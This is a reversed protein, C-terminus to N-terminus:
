FGPIATKLFKLVENGRPDTYLWILLAGMSILYAPFTVRAWIMLRRARRGDNPDDNHWALISMLLELILLLYTAFFVYDLAVNYGVNLRSSLNVHFFVISLVAGTMIGTVTDFKYGPLFLSLYALLVLCFLPLMNKLVFRESKRQISIDMNFRSNEVNQTGVWIPNGLSATNSHTDIYVRATTPTWDSVTAFVHDTDFRAILAEGSTIKDMGLSDEVYILRERTLNKHRFKIALEQHDFPYNQLDVDARFQSRVRFLKYNANGVLYSSVPEDLKIPAVSNIFEIDEVDLDGQYRFWLYFDATFTHNKDIDVDSIDNLKIGAYVVNTKYFNEAGHTIVTGSTRARNMDSILRTDPIPRLQIPAAIFSGQQFVGFLTPQKFNHEQDFYISGTLGDVAKTPNDISELFDRIGKREAELTDPSGTANIKRMAEVAIRLADYTTAGIWSPAEKYENSYNNHFIQAQEGAVDYSLITMATLGDIDSPNDFMPAFHVDGMGYSAILPFDQKNALMAVVLAKAENKTLALFVIGPQPGDPSTFAQVIERATQLGREDVTTLRTMKQEYVITGGQTEFTAKFSADLSQGFNDDTYIISATDHGMVDKTYLAAYRGLDNTNSILRFAWPHDKTVEPASATTNLSPIRASEYISAVAASAPSKRHGIVVLARRDSVVQNAKSTAEEISDNGDYYFDIKLPYGNVGGSANIESEFLKAAHEIEPYSDPEKEPVIVAVHIPMKEGAFPNLGQLPAPLNDFVPRFTKELAEPTWKGTFYLLAVGGLLLILILLCVTRRKSTGKMSNEEKSRFFAEHSMIVGM